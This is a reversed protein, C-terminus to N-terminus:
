RKLDLDQSRGQVHHGLSLNLMWLGRVGRYLPTRSLPNVDMTLEIM